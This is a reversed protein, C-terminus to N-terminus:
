CACQVQLQPYSEVILAQTLLFRSFYVHDFRFITPFLRVDAETLEDGLLFRHMAGCKLNGPVAFANSFSAAGSWM